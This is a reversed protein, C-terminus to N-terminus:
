TKIEVIGRKTGDRKTQWTELFTRMLEDSLMGERVWFVSAGFRAQAEAHAFLTRSERPADELRFDAAM